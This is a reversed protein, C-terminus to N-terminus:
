LLKLDYDTNKRPLQANMQKQDNKKKLLHARFSARSDWDFSKFDRPQEPSETHRPAHFNGKTIPPKKDENLPSAFAPPKKYSGFPPVQLLQSKKEASGVGPDVSEEKNAKNEEKPVDTLSVSASKLHHARSSHVQAAGQGKQFESEKLIYELFGTLSQNNGFFESIFSQDQLLKTPQSTKEIIEEMKAFKEAGMNQKLFDKRFICRNPSIPSKPIMASISNTKPRELVKFGLGNQFAQDSLSSPSVFTPSKKNNNNLPTTKSSSNTSKKAEEEPKKDRNGYQSRIYNDDNTNISIPKIFGRRARNDGKEGAKEEKECPPPPLHSFNKASIETLCSINSYAETSTPSNKAKSIIASLSNPSTKKPAFTPISASPDEIEICKKNDVLSFPAKAGFPMGSDKYHSPHQKKLADLAQLIEPHSIIEDIAPRLEPGKQLMSSLSQKIFPSSIERTLKKPPENIIKLVVEPVSSGDFPRELCCVEFLVCGLMWIDSKHDYKKNQCIEPSLYYPTGLGTKALDNTNELKKSIGFDTL